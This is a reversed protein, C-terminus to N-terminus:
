SCHSANTLTNVDRQGFLPALLSVPPRDSAHKGRAHAVWLITSPCAHLDYLSSLTSPLLDNINCYNV